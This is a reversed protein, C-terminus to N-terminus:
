KKMCSKKLAWFVCWLLVTAWKEMVMMKLRDHSKQGAEM